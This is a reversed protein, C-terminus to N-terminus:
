ERKNFEKHALYESLNGENEKKLFLAFKGSEVKEEYQFAIDKQNNESRHIVDYFNKINNPIAFYEQYEKFSKEESIHLIGKLLAYFNFKRVEERDYDEPFHGAEILITNHGLKQFNDGTATPYFEDTYRGIHNPIVQQLLNNMAVIINMTAIRGDTIKRTEEESPALFSISAPNKTGEVGFITRQDHLNFCFHPNFKNLVNRLVKSEKAKLAVADRNLDITNANVRTYAEAGDPNLMPIFELTCNALITKVFESNKFIIICNLFDFLAKTGTSENGHMQSWTLIRKEGSGISIKYIPRDEESRGIEEVKFQNTLKKIIPLIDQITIWRGFLSEEKIQSYNEELFDITIEM